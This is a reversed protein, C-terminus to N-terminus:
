RVQLRWKDADKDLQLGAQALRQRSSSPLASTISTCSPAIPDPPSRVSVTKISPIAAWGSACRFGTPSRGSRCARRRARGATDRRVAALGRWEEDLKAHMKKAADGLQSADAVTIKPLEAKACRDAHRLARRRRHAAGGQRGRRHRRHGNAGSLAREAAGAGLRRRCLGGRGVPREPRAPRRACRHAAGGDGLHRARELCRALRQPRRAAGAREQGEVAPHRPGRAAGDRGARSMPRPRALGAGSRRQLVVTLTAIYRNGASRERQFETGRVLGALRADDIPPVRARDEAPVM